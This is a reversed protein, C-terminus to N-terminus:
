LIKINQQTRQPYCYGDFYHLKKLKEKKMGHQRLSTSELNLSFIMKM